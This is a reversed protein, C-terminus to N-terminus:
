RDLGIASAAVRRASTGVTGRRDADTHRPQYAVRGAYQRDGRWLTRLSRLPGSTGAGIVMIKKPAAAPTVQYAPDYEHGLQPNMTCTYPLDRFLRSLCNLSGVCRKVESMKGAQAKRVLDPDALLPRCVEWFDFEGDEICQNAM